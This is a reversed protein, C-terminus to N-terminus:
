GSTAYELEPSWGDGRGEPTRDLMAWMPWMFDVHRPEQGPESQVWMLESSWWHHIRGDRRVFVTAVPRQAGDAQEAHYDRNYSNGASSLLRAHRWGRAQAHARFQEIPAKAIVAFNIRQVLHRATGDVADIISTCAPCGVELLLGKKGPIFMHNYLFLTDEGDEFLASLAVPRATGSAADWEDFTYDEPIEGGLPLAARQATVAGMHRRLEMEAELLEDRARRYDASEGPLYLEHLSTQAM